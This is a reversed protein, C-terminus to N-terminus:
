PRTPWSTRQLVVQEWPFWRGRAVGVLYLSGTVVVPREGGALELARTVAAVPDLVAEARLGRARAAEVLVAPSAVDKGHLRPATAVVTHCLPGLAEVAAAPDRSGTSAAVLICGPSGESRRGLREVLADRLAALKQPNHAGDLIVPARGHAPGPDVVELRGPVRLRELGAAVHEGRIAWGRAALLDLSMAAVTANRLQFPARPLRVEVDGLTPLRLLVRRREGEAGLDRAVVEPRVLVLAAGVRRAEAAIVDSGPGAVAVAPVRAEVIGAKHSAVAPLGAGLVDEHDLGLDTIVSLARDLGQVLDFRGGVGTEVVAADLRAGQFALFISGLGALGHTSAAREAEGPVEATIAAVTPRVADVARAFDLPDCFRGAVWLKETYAQLYPSVTLGTRLGAADLGLAIATAVSGKGSTGAVQVAPAARQPDGLAAYFALAEARKRENDLRRKGLRVLDVDIWDRAAVYRALAAREDATPAPWVGASAEVHPQSM